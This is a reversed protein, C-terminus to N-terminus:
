APSVVFHGAKGSQLVQLGKPVTTVTFAGGYKQIFPDKPDVNLSLGQPKGNKGIPHILGDAGARVDVGLRAALNHGGRFLGTNAVGGGLLGWLRTAGQGALGFLKGGAPIIGIVGWTWDAGSCASGRLCTGLAYGPLVTFAVKDFSAFGGTLAQAGDAAATNVAVDTNVVSASERQARAADELAIRAFLAAVEAEAELMLRQWQEASVGTDVDGLIRHTPAATPSITSTPDVAPTGPDNPQGSGGNTGDDGAVFPEPDEPAFIFGAHGETDELSRLSPPLPRWFSLEFGIDRSPTAYNPEYGSPDVMSLPSNLVYSYRNLRQVNTLDSVIPDASMFRALKPDYIRGGMHIVGADDVMEHGTFGQTTLANLTDYDAKVLDALTLLNRRKGFADFSMQAVVSGAANTIIDTSGLM